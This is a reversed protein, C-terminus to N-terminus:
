FGWGSGSILQAGGATRFAKDRAPFLGAEEMGCGSRKSGLLVQASIQCPQGGAVGQQDGLFRRFSECRVGGARFQGGSVGRHSKAFHLNDWQMAMPGMIGAKADKRSHRAVWSKRGSGRSQFHNSAAPRVEFFAAGLKDLWSQAARADLAWGWSTSIRAGSGRKEGVTEQLGKEAGKQPGPPSGDVHNSDPIARAWPV